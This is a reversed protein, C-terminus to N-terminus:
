FPLDDDQDPGSPAEPYPDGGGAAPNESQAPAEPYPDGGGAAPNESQSPATYGKSSLMEMSSAKISTTYRKQGNQDEWQKTQMAGEVYVLSGKQLYQGCIEGLRGWAVVRHWETKEQQQGERDKWRKTTAVTFNAVATNTQTHRIEPDKGLRGIIMVKNLM